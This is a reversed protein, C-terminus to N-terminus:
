GHHPSFLTDLSVTCSNVVTLIGTCLAWFKIHALNSLSKIPRIMIHYFWIRQNLCRFNGGQLVCDLFYLKANESHSEM